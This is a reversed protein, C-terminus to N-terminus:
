MEGTEDEFTVMVGQALGEATAKRIFDAPDNTVRTTMQRGRSDQTPRSTDRIDLFYRGIHATAPNTSVSVYIVMSKDM